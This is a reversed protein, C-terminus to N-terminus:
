AVWTRACSGGAGVQEAFTHRLHTGAPLSPGVVAADEPESMRDSAAGAGEGFVKGPGLGEVWFVEELQRRCAPGSLRVAVTVCVRVCSCCLTLPLLRGLTQLLGQVHLWV